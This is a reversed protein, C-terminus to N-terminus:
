LRRCSRGYVIQFSLDRFFCYQDYSIKDVDWLAELYGSLCNYSVLLTDLKGEGLRSDFTNLMKCVGM